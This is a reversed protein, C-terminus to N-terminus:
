NDSTDIPFLSVDARSDVVATLLRIIRDSGPKSLEVEVVPMPPWYDNSYPYTHLNM